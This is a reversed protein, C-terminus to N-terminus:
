CLNGICPIPRHDRKVVPNPRQPRCHAAYCNQAPKITIKRGDVKIGGSAVSGRHDRIVKNSTAEAAGIAMIAAVLMASCFTLTASKTM